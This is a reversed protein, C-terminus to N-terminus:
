ISNIGCVFLKEDVKFWYLEYISFVYVLLGYEVEERSIEVEYFGNEELWKGLRVVYEDLLM